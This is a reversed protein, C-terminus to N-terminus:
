PAGRVGPQRESFRVRGPKDTKTPVGGESKSSRGARLSFAAGNHLSPPVFSSRSSRRSKREQLRMRSVGPTLHKITGAPVPM